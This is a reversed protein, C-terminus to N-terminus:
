NLALVVLAAADIAPIASAALAAAVLVLARKSSTM